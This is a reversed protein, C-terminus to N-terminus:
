NVNRLLVRKDVFVIRVTKGSFLIKSVGFLQKQIPFFNAKLLM